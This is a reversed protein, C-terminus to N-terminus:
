LDLLHPRTGYGSLSAFHVSTSDTWNPLVSGRRTPGRFICSSLTQGFGLSQLFPLLSFSRECTPGSPPLGVIRPWFLQPASLHLPMQPAALPFWSFYPSQADLSPGILELQPRSSFPSPVHYYVWAPFFGRDLVPNLLSYDTRALYM